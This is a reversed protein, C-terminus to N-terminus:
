SGDSFVDLQPEKKRPEPCLSLSRTNHVYGLLHQLCKWHDAGPRSAHRALLNVTYAIDPSTGTAAYSLAGVTGIYDKAHTTKANTPLTVLEKRLQLLLGEDAAAIIGNDVHLWIMAKRSKHMYLSKDLNSASYGLMELRAEVCQWWCYGAQKTRDLAKHLKCGFGPPVHLGDPPRDWINNDIEVNPYAAVYYFIDIYWNRTILQKGRFLHGNEWSKQM